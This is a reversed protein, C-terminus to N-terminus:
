PLYMYETSCGMHICDFAAHLTNDLEKEKEKGEIDYCSLLDRFEFSSKIVYSM